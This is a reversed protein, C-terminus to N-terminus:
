HLTGRTLLVFAAQEAHDMATRRNEVRIEAFKVYAQCAEYLAQTGVALGISELLRLDKEHMFSPIVTNLADYEEKRTIFRQVAHLTRHEGICQELSTLIDM